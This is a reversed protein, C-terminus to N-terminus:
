GEFELMVLPVDEEWYNDKLFDKWNKGISSLIWKEVIKPVRFRLQM